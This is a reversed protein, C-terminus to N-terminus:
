TDAIHRPLELCISLLLSLSIIGIMIIAANLEEEANAPKLSHAKGTFEFATPKIVSVNVM